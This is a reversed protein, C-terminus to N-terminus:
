LRSRQAGSALKQNLTDQFDQASHVGMGKLIQNRAAVEIITAISRGPRVPIRLSPVEEGLISYVAEDVGLRDYTDESDWECLEIVLDISHEDQVSAMGFLDKVNIIGLGRVEMHHKIIGTGTGSLQNPGIRRVEVVDDAVMRYGRVVLDLAAESKGIGSKGLLLTGIGRIELFVGHLTTKPSLHAQLFRTTQGIFESSVATTVLLPVGAADCARVLEDPPTLARTVVICAPHAGLVTQVAVERQEETASGLFEIETGGLTLLRGDDLQQEYGTLALGPKQIRPVTIVRSLGSRGAKIELRLSEGLGSVLEQIAISPM